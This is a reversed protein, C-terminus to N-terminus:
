QAFPDVRQCQEYGGCHRSRDTEICRVINRDSRLLTMEDRERELVQRHIFSASALKHVFPSTPDNINSTHKRVFRITSSEFLRHFYPHNCGLYYHMCGVAVVALSLHSEDRQSDHLLPVLSSGIQERSLREDFGRMLARDSPPCCAAPLRGWPISTRYLTPRALNAHRALDVHRALDM